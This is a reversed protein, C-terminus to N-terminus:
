DHQKEKERIRRIMAEAGSQPSNYVRMGCHELGRAAGAMTIQSLILTDCGQQKLEEASKRLLEYSMERNGLKLVEMAEANVRVCTKVEKGVSKAYELVKRETEPGASVTTALVGIQTGNLVAAEIMPQDIAIMPKKTLMQMKEVYGSYLSCAIVIGEVSSQEAMMILQALNRMGWTDVGNNQNAHYLLEENVFNCVQVSEDVKRFAEMLPEVANMTAHIVGIRM